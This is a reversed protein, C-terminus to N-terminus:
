NSVFIVYKQIYPGAGERILEGIRKLIKQKANREKGKKCKKAKRERSLPSL